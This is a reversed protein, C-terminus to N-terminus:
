PNPSVDAQEAAPRERQRVAVPPEHGLERVLRALSDQHDPLLPIGALRLAANDLVAFSPRPAPRPPRLEATAIPKVPTLDLGAAILADCALRYWTTPGQNTVHFTGPLRDVVLRRIMTALDAANTFCGHQDKVVKLELGREAKQLVTKVFNKGHKGCVWSTRVITDEPSLEREGGLKSRGYASLPRPTDWETVPRASRGDFVYDTSIYCVRAGVARAAESVYRTGLANVLLARDPDTECGDVDTWAAAHVVVDPEAEGIVSRAQDRDTVDLVDRPCAITDPGFVDALERGVQGGAGTILVRM